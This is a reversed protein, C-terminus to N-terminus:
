NFRLSFFTAPGAMAGLSYGGAFWNAFDDATPFFVEGHNCDFFFIADGVRKIGVAHSAGAVVYILITYTASTVVLRIMPGRLNWVPGASLGGVPTFGYATMLTAATASWPAQPAFIAVTNALVSVHGGAGVPNVWTSFARARNARWNHMWEMTMALCCGPPAGGGGGAGLLVFAPHVAQNFDFNVNGHHVGVPATGGAACMHSFM